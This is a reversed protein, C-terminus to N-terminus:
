LSKKIRMVALGHDASILALFLLWAQVAQSVLGLGCPRINM